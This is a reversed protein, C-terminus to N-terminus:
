LDPIQFNKFKKVSRETPRICLEKGFVDFYVNHELHIRFICSAKPIVRIVNDKGLVKFTNKTDQIIIGEIGITSPCKSKVITIIAGHFDAKILRHNISEWHSHTFNMPLSTFNKIGLMHHMYGLWLSNLPVMQKYQIYTKTQNLYLRICKRMAMLSSKEPKNTVKGKRKTLPFLKRLEEDIDKVDSSPLINKLFNVLYDERQKYTTFWNSITVPLPLCINDNSNEM